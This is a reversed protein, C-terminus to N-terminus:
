YSFLSETLSFACKFCRLLFFFFSLRALVEILIMARAACYLINRFDGFLELRCDPDLEYRDCTLSWVYMWLLGRIRFTRDIGRLLFCSGNNAAALSYIFPHRMRRLSFLPFPHSLGPEKTGSLRSLIPRSRIRRNAFIGACM